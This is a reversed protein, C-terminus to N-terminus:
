WVMLVLGTPKGLKLVLEYGSDTQVVSLSCRKPDPLKSRAEELATVDITMKGASKALTFTGTGVDDNQMYASADVSLHCGAGITLTSGACLPVREAGYGDAPVVFEVTSDNELQVYTGASVKPSNGRLTLVCNTPALTASGTPHGLKFENVTNITANSVVVRGDPSNAIFANAASFTAGDTVEVLHGSSTATTGASDGMYFHGSTTGFTAQREVRIANGKGTGIAITGQTWNAGDDLEFVNGSGAGFVNNDYTAFSADTQPGALLLRNSAAGNLRAFILKNAVSFSANSVILEGFHGAASSKSDYGLYLNGGFSLEAGDKVIVRNPSVATASQSVGIYAASSGTSLKAGGEVVFDNEYGNNKGWHFAGGVWMTAKDSIRVVEGRTSGGTFSGANTWTTGEGAVFLSLGSPADLLGTNDNYNVSFNGGVYVASRESVEMKANQNVYSQARGIWSTDGSVTSLSSGGKVILSNGTANKTYACGFSKAKRVVCGNDLTLSGNYCKGSNVFHGLTFYGTSSLDWIGGNLVVSCPKGAASSLVQFATAATTADITVTRAASGSAAATLDFVVGNADTVNVSGFSVDRSATVTGSYRFVAVSPVADANWGTSDTAAIDTAGEPFVEGLGTQALVTLCGALIVLNFKKEFM